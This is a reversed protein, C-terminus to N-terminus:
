QCIVMNCGKFGYSLQIRLSKKRLRTNFSSDRTGKSLIGYWQELDLYLDWQYFQSLHSLTAAADVCLLFTTEFTSTMSLLRQESLAQRWEVSTQAKLTNSLTKYWELTESNFYQLELCNIWLHKWGTWVIGFYNLLQCRSITKKKKKLHWVSPLCKRRNNSM